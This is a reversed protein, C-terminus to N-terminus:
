QAGGGGGGRRGVEGLRFGREGRGKIYACRRMRLNPRIPTTGQSPKPSSAQQTVAMGQVQGEEECM